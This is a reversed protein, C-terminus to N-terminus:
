VIVHQEIRILSSPDDMHGIRCFEKKTWTGGGFVSSLFFFSKTTTTTKNFSSVKIHGVEKIAAVISSQDMVQAAGVTSIVVDVQKLAKM